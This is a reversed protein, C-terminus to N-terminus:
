IQGITFICFLEDKDPTHFPINVSTIRGATARYSKCRLMQVGLEKFLALEKLGGPSL